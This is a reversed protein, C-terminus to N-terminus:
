KINNIKKILREKQELLDKYEKTEKNGERELEFILEETQDILYIYDQKDRPFEMKM